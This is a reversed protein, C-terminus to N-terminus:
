AIQKAIEWDMPSTIKINREEGRVPRIRIGMQFAIEYTTQMEIGQEDIYRHIRELVERTYAQPSQPLYFKKKDMANVLWEGDHTVIPIPSPTYALAAGHDIAAKIINKVLESSTFPRAVDMILVIDQTSKEFLKRITDQRTNGGPFFDIDESQYSEINRECGEPYGVIIHNVSSRVTKLVRSLLTEGKLELFAKARM